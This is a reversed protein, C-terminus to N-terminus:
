GCRQHLSGDEVVFLIMKGESWGNGTVAEKVSLNGISEEFYNNLDEEYDFYLATGISSTDEEIKVVGRGTENTLLAVIPFLKNITFFGEFMVKGNDDILVKDWSELKKLRELKSARTMDKLKNRLEQATIGRMKAYNDLLGKGNFFQAAYLSDNLYLAQEVNSVWLRNKASDEFRSRIGKILRQALEDSAFRGLALLYLRYKNKPSVVIQTNNFARTSPSVVLYLLFEDMSKEDLYSYMLDAQKDITITWANYLEEYDRYEGSVVKKNQHWKRIYISLIAKLVEPKVEIRSNKYYVVNKIPINAEPSIDNDRIYDEAMKEVERENPREGKALKEEDIARQKAIENEKATKKAGQKVDGSVLNNKVLHKTAAKAEKKLFLQNAKGYFDLSISDSKTVIYNSFREFPKDSACDELLTMARELNFLLQKEIIKKCREGLFKNSKGAGFYYYLVTDLDFSDASINHCDKFVGIGYEVFSNLTIKKLSSCKEFADDGIRKLSKPFIIEKVGEHHAFAGGNIIEIGENIVILSRSDSLHKSGAALVMNQYVFLEDDTNKLEYCEAFAKDCIKCNAPINITQLGTGMFALSEISELGDPLVVEKLSGCNQFAGWRIVKLSSPCIVKQIRSTGMFRTFAQPGIEEIGEPIEFIIDDGTYNRIQKHNIEYNNGNSM